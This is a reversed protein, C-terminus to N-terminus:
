AARGCSRRSRSPRRGVGGRLGAFVPASSGASSASSSQAATAAAETLSAGATVAAYVQPLCARLSLSRAQGAYVGGLLPEVLRDVVADGLRAAVYEGVSIDDFEGSPWPLEAEARAVEERTLVGCASSAPSPIGMLTGRPM